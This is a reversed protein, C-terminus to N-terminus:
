FTIKQKWLDKKLKVTSENWTKMESMLEPETISEFNTWEKATKECARVKATLSGATRRGGVARRQVEWRKARSAVPAESGLSFSFGSSALPSPPLSEFWPPLSLLLPPRHVPLFAHFSPRTESDKEPTAINVDSIKMQPLNQHRWLQADAKTCSWAYYHWKYLEPCFFTEDSPFFRDFFLNTVWIDALATRVRFFKQSRKKRAISQKM